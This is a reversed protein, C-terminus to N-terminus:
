QLYITSPVPGAVSVAGVAVFFTRDKTDSVLVSPRGKATTCGELVPGDCASTSYVAVALTDSANNTQAVVTTKAKTGTIRFWRTPIASTPGCAFVAMAPQAVGSRFGADRQSSNWVLPSACSSGDGGGSVCVDGV